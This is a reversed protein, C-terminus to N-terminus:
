VVSKRDAGTFAPQKRLMRCAFRVDQWVSEVVSEWGVDRVRDKVAEVSGIEVRAARIASDRSMGSSEKREAATELYERLEDDLDQEVQNKHFLGRFGGIFRSFLAM